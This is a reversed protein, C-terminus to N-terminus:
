ASFPSDHSERSRSRIRQASGAGASPEKILDAASRILLGKLEPIFYQERWRRQMAPTIEDPDAVVLGQLDGQVDFIICPNDKLFQRVAPTARRFRFWIQKHSNRPIRVAMGWKRKFQFVGMRPYPLCGLLDLTKHGAQNAWRILLIYLAGIVHEQLLQEDANAIGLTIGTVKGVRTRCLASAVAQGNRKVIFLYGHRFHEKVEAQSILVAADGHRKKMTPLYMTYYHKALDDDDHSVEYTYDYRQLCSFEHQVGRDKCLRRKLDEWEGQVDLTCDIYLPLTIANSRPLQRIFRESSAVVVIDSDGADAVEGPRWVSVPRQVIEQPEETFMASKLYLKGYNLGIYTVTLPGGKGQGLWTSVDMYPRVVQLALEKLECLYPILIRQVLLSDSWDMENWLRHGAELLKSM